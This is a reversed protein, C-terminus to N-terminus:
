SFPDVDAHSLVDPPKITLPVPITRSNDQLHQMKEKNQSAVKEGKTNLFRNM